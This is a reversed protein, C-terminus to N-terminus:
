QRKLPKRLLVADFLRNPSSQGQMILTFGAYNSNLVDTRLHDLEATVRQELQQTCSKLFGSGHIAEEDVHIAEGMSIFLDPHQEAQYEIRTALPYLLSPASLRALHAAGNYFHLPRHDNPKIVGQPFLWVMRGPREKLLHAAYHLSQLASRTDHRDVSFCGSWTFFRYRRLQAEEMMLYGDVDLYHEILAAIYGDWWSAHNACVIMPQGCATKEQLTAPMRLFIRDFHRHLSTHILLWILKEGIPFKHAPIM